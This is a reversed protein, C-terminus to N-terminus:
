YDLIIHSFHVLLPANMRAAIPDATHNPLARLNGHSQASNQPLANKIAYVNHISSKPTGINIASIAIQLFIM